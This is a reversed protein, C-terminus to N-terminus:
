VSVNDILRIEDAYVAICATVGHELRESEIDQLTENNVINFYEIQLYQNENITDFVKKKIDTISLKSDKKIYKFLTQSVLVAAKRQAKNLRLNRSSMALGDPERVTDCIVINIDSKKFYKKVLYKIIVAQQFDKKGFYANNPKIIEFFKSVIKAVGQFHGSRYKGEMVSDLGDLEFFHEEKKPYMEKVDPCFVIDNAHEELMKFDKLEDRPYLELDVASNFQEPNVFLSVITVDNEKKSRKLLSLHGEHLSGMTPVFGITTGNKKLKALNLNIIKRYINM